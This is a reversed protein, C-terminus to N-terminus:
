VAVSAALQVAETTLTRIAPWNKEAILKREVMWSGGIAAVIPLSLYARANGANVGGLPIFKLGTHAYPGALSQLMKVGGAAEAPFFKQLKCGLALGHEVDSPTMVGPVFPLKLALSKKVVVENLGPAVAFQAGADIARQLQDTDLITGAGVLMKPFAKVVNRLSQEAAPTRFTIEMVNLGGALLAEALPVADEARDIVVVPVVRVKSIREM